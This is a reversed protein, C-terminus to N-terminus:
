PNSLARILYEMYQITEVSPDRYFAGEFKAKLTISDIGRDLAIAHPPYPGMALNYAFLGMDVLNQSWQLIAKHNQKPVMAMTSLQESVFSTAATSAHAYDHTFFSSRPFKQPSLYMTRTFLKGLLFVLDLNPLVGRRGHPLVAFEARGLQDPSIQGRHMAGKVSKDDIDFVVLSRLLAGSIKPPLPPVGSQEEELQSPNGLYANLFFQVTQELSSDGHPAVVILTKALWPTSIPDALKAISTLITYHFNSGTWDSQPPAPIVLVIAEELPDLANALPTITVMSFHDGHVHCSLNERSALAECLNSQGLPTSPLSVKLHSPVDWSAGDAFKIEISHEDLYWGRCKLEGTIISVVPNLCTWLVGLFYPLFLLTRYIREGKSKPSM